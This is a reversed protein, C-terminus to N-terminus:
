PAGGRHGHYTSYGASHGGAGAPAAIAAGWASRALASILQLSRYRSPLVANRRIVTFTRSSSLAMTAPSAM